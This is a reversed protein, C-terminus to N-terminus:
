EAIRPWFRHVSLTEFFLKMSALLKMEYLFRAYELIEGESQSSTLLLIRGGDCLLDKVEGLFRISIEHGGEGGVLQEKERGRLVESGEGTIYPPNFLIVDFKGSIGRALDTQIIDISAGNRVANSRANNVAVPSIDTATM